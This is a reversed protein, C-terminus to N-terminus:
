CREKRSSENTNDAHFVKAIIIFNLRVSIGLYVTIQFFVLFTVGNDVFRRESRRIPATRRM